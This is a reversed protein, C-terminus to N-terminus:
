PKLWLVQLSLEATSRRRCGEESFHTSRTIQPVSRIFVPPETAGAAFGNRHASRGDGESVQWHLGWIRKEWCLSSAADVFSCLCADAGPSRRARSGIISFTSPTQLQAFTNKDAWSGDCGGRNDTPRATNTNIAPSEWAQREGECHEPQLCYVSFAPSLWSEASTM